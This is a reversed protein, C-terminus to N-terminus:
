APRSSSDVEEWGGLAIARRVGEAGHVRIRRGDEILKTAGEVEIVRTRREVTGASVPLGLLAEAPAGADRYSGTVVEGDSTM